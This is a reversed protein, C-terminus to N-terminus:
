LGLESYVDDPYYYNSEKKMEYNDLAKQIIKQNFSVFLAGINNLSDFTKSININRSGDLNVVIIRCQKELAVDVEYKVFMKNKTDDGVLLIFTSAQNIKERLKSKIYAENTSNIAGNLQLDIFDFDHSDNKKWAKMLDFYNKDSSSFSVFTRSGM